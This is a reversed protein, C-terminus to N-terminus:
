GVKQRAEGRWTALHAEMEVRKSLSTHRRWQGESTWTMKPPLVANASPRMRGKHHILCGFTAIDM